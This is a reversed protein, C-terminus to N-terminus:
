HETTAHPDLRLEEAEVQQRRREVNFNSKSLKHRGHSSELLFDIKYSLTDLLTLNVNPLAQLIIV